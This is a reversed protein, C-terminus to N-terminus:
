NDNKGHHEGKEQSHEKNRIIIYVKKAKTDLTKSFNKIYKTVFQSHFKQTVKEFTLRSL